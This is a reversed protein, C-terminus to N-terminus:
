DSQQDDDEEDEEDFGFNVSNGGTTMFDEILDSLARSELNNHSNILVMSNGSVDFGLLIYCDVYESLTSAIASGLRQKEKVSLDKPKKRVKPAKKNTIDKLLKEVKKFDSESPNEPIEDM